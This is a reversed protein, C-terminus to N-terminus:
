DRIAPQRSDTPQRASAWAKAEGAIYFSGTALILTEADADASLVDLADAVSPSTTAKARKGHDPRALSQALTQLEAAENGRPNDIAKTFIVRDARDLIPAIMGKADKDAACGFIVALRRYSFAMPLADLLAVISERTHAGDAVILPSRSLVEVRGDRPTRELGQTFASPSIPLNPAHHKLTAAIALVLATNMAQHTGPLPIMAEFRCGARGDIAVRRAAHNFEVPWDDGVIHLPARHAAAKQRFAQLIEGQAGGDQPITLVPTEPKIIGAKEAAILGLTNGLIQTHELHIATIATVGLGPPALVNTSDLRGGLGVEIVAVQVHMERFHVFAMATLLEFYTAPGHHPDLRREASLVIDLSKAFHEPAIWQGDVRLRERIDVLHPSTYLGTRIGCGTLGAAMMECVSGKGKSGAVHISRFHQEPHGLEAMLARMRDLKLTGQGLHAPHTREVNIRSKLRELAHLYAANQARGEPM